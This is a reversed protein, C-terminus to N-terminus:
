SQADRYPQHTYYKPSQDLRIHLWAVGWGSTSLWLPRASLADKTARATECWLADRQRAPAERTFSAIDTYNQSLSQPTPIVLKADGGLNTITIVSNQAGEGSQFYPAFSQEDPTRAALGDSKILMCEFDEDLNQTQLAPMEWFFSGFEQDALAQNFAVRFADSHQLADIFERRSIARHSAHASLKVCNSAIRAQNIQPTQSHAM